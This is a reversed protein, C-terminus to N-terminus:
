ATCVRMMTYVQGFLEIRAADSFHDSPHDPAFTVMVEQSGGPWLLSDTMLRHRMLINYSIKSMDIPNLENM